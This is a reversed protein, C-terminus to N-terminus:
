ACKCLRRGSGHCVVSRRIDRELVRIIRSFCSNRQLALFGPLVLAVSEADSWIVNGKLYCTGILVARRIGLTFSRSQNAKGQACQTKAGIGRLPNDM